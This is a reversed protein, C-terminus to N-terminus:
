PSFITIICLHWLYCLLLVNIVYKVCEMSSFIYMIDSDLRSHIDITFPLPLIVRELEKVITNGHMKVSEKHIFGLSASFELKIPIVM